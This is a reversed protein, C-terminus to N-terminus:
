VRDAANQDLCVAPIFFVKFPIFFRQLITDAQCPKVFIVQVRKRIIIRVQKRFFDKQIEGILFVHIRSVTLHQVAINHSKHIRFRRQVPLIFTINLLKGHLLKQAGTHVAPQYRQVLM